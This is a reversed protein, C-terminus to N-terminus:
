NLSLNLIAPTSVGRAGIQSVSLSLSTAGALQDATRDASTYTYTTSEVDITRAAGVNPTLTVRYLEQEEALPADLGDVWRWGARSRRIWHFGTDASPMKEAYLHVPSLPRVGAGVAGAVVIPPTSGDAIGTAMVRVGDLARDTDILKLTNRDILVFKEGAVHGGIAAETGRRGRFLETLRWRLGGLPVASGFQILESGISALNAGSLLQAQDADALLMGNNLLDVELTTTRDILRASGSSLVGVVQGIVAPAATEGADVWSAGGDTTTLLSARRWGASTGAAAVALQPETPAVDSLPPLDLLALTTPGHLRDAQSLVRGGDAAFVTQAGPLPVLDLEVVMHELAVGAIHWVGDSGPLTVRGGPRLSLYHWPVRVKASVREAWLASLKREVFLKAAAASITAPLDVRNARRAGGDRRASQLGPQFDRSPDYYALTLMEPAQNISRREIPLRAGRKDGAGSGLHQAAIPSPAAAGEVIKLRLGDDVLATPIAGAVTEAVARVSEGSAAFGSLLTPADHGITDGALDAIMAGVSVPAEDAIVEFSLSPIRNGYDALQLNEFVVYTHGRYAPTNAIGEASAILPDIPQGESGTYVRFGTQTKFDGAAGRLLNGDAWIRGIRSIARASLLVAFSASYSYNVTRPQGKGNSQSSSTERIDTAWIVSGAVRMTGFLKPIPAGYHSSQVSLDGLRPGQRDAPGFLQNDILQGAIAGVARGVGGGVLGGVAAFILTAM